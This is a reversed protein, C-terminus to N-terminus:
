FLIHFKKGNLSGKVEKASIVEIERAGYDFEKHHNPCLVLLNGAVSKGGKHVAKIHAVEVYLDGNVKKIISNCNPFQCKYHHKQKLAKIIPSDNRITQEVLIKKTKPADASLTELASFLRESITGKKNAYNDLRDSRRIVIFDRKLFRVAATSVFKDHSWFVKNRSFLNAISILYKPPYARDKYILDWDKSVRMKPVGYQDIYHIAQLINQKTIEKPIM